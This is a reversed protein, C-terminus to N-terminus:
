FYPLNRYHAAEKKQTSQWTKDTLRYLQFIASIFQTASIYISNRQYIQFIASIFQTTSIYKFFRRYLDLQASIVSFDSMYNWKGCFMFDCSMREEYLFIYICFSAFRFSFPLTRQIIVWSRRRFSLTYCCRGWTTYNQRDSFWRLIINYIKRMCIVFSLYM